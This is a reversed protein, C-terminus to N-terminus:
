LFQAYEEKSITVSSSRSPAITDRNVILSLNPKNTAQPHCCGGGSDRSNHSMEVKWGNKGDLEHIANHANRHDDFNIFAHRTSRKAVWVNHM